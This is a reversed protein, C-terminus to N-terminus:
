GLGDSFFISTLIPIDEGFKPTFIFSTEFWWGSILLLEVLMDFFM